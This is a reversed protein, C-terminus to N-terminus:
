VKIWSFLVLSLKWLYYNSSHGNIMQFATKLCCQKYCMLFLWCDTESFDFFMMHQVIGSKGFISAIKQFFCISESCCFLLKFLKEQKSKLFTNLCLILLAWYTLHLNHDWLFSHFVKILDPHCFNKSKPITNSLSFM